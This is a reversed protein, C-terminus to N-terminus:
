EGEGLALWAAKLAVTGSVAVRSNPAIAISGSQILVRDAVTSVVNVKTAVFGNASEIFVISDDGQRILANKPVAYTVPTRNGSKPLSSVIQAQVIQGPLLQTTNTTIEARVLVTQDNENLSRMINTVMGSAAASPIEVKMDKKFQNIADVPIRMELWLPNLRAIKFFPMAMDVREGITVMQELVVGDIPSFLNIGTAYQGKAALKSMATQSIGSLKLSQRLQSLLANKEALESQTALYRRESIIGEKFLMADREFSKQALTQQTAAQLYERQLGLLDNSTVKALLQGKKVESGIAVQLSEVLGAHSTSVIREQGVPIMVKGSYFQSDLHNVAEIAAVVIGMTKQQETSIVVKNKDVLGSQAALAMNLHFALISIVLVNKIVFLQNM